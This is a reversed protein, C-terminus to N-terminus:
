TPEQWERTLDPQLDHSSVRVMGLGSQCLGKLLSSPSLFDVETEQLWESRVDVLNQFTWVQFVVENIIFSHKLSDQWGWPSSSGKDKTSRIERTLQLPCHGHESSNLNCARSWINTFLFYIRTHNRSIIFLVSHRLSDFENNDKWVTLSFGRIPCLWQNM